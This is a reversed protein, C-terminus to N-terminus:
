CNIFDSALRWGRPFLVAIFLGTVQTEAQLAKLAEKATGGDRIITGNKLM